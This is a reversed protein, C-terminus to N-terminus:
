PTPRIRLQYTGTGAEVGGGVTLTCPGGRALTVVGPDTCGLCTDFLVAGAEDELRWRVSTLAPAASLSEFLVAGGPTLCLWRFASTCDGLPEEFFVAQGAVGPFEYEDSAGPTELRGAGAAPEGDVVATGIAIPYRTPAPM